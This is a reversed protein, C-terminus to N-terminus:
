ISKAVPALGAVPFREMALKFLLIVVISMVGVVLANQVSIRVNSAAM